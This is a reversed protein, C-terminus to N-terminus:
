ANIGIIRPMRTELGTVETFLEELQDCYIDHFVAIDKEKLPTFEATQTKHNLKMKGGTRRYFRMDYLDLGNLTIELRNAGSSNRALSMRLTDKDGIFDKSGTMVIFRRGGLQMLITEPVTM